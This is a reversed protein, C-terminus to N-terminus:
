ARLNDRYARTPQIQATCPLCVHRAGSSSMLQHSSLQAERKGQLLYRRQNEAVITHFQTATASTREREERDMLAKTLLDLTLAQQQNSKAMAEMEARLASHQRDAAAQLELVLSNTEMQNLRVYKVENHTSNLTRHDNLQRTEKLRIANRRLHDASIRIRGVEADVM